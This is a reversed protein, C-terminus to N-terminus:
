KVREVRQKLSDLKKHYKTLDFTTPMEKILTILESLYKGFKAFRMELRAIEVEAELLRQEMENM